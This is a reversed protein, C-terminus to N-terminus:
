SELVTFIVNQIVNVLIVGDKPVETYILQVKLFRYLHHSFFRRQLRYGTLWALTQLIQQAIM